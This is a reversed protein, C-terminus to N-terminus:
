HQMSPLVRCEKRSSWRGRISTSGVEKKLFDQLAKVMADDGVGARAKQVGPAKVIQGREEDPAGTM